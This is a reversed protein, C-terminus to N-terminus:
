IFAPYICPALAFEKANNLSVAVEVFGTKDNWASESVPIPLAPASV